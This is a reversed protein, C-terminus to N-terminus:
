VDKSEKGCPTDDLFTYDNSLDNWSTTFLNRRIVVGDDRIELVMFFDNSERHKLWIGGYNLLKNEITRNKVSYNASDYADIFEDANEFPVYKKPEEKKEIICSYALDTDNREVVFPAISDKHIEVLVGLNVTSKENAGALCLSPNNNFYVEKGILSEIGEKTPDIIINKYSYKNM